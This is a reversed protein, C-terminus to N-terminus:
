AGGLPTWGTLFSIWRVVSALLIVALFAIETRLFWDPAQNDDKWDKM